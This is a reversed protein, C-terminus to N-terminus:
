TAPFVSYFHIYGNKKELESHYHMLVENVDGLVKIVQAKSNLWVAQHESNIAPYLWMKDKHTFGWSMIHITETSDYKTHMGTIHQTYYLPYFSTPTFISTKRNFIHIFRKEYRESYEIAFLHNQIFKPPYDSYNRVFYLFPKGILNGEKDILQERARGKNLRAIAFGEKNFEGINSINENFPLLINGNFDSLGCPGDNEDSPQIVVRQFPKDYIHRINFHHQTFYHIGFDKNEM